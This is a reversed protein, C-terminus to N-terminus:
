RSVRALLEAARERLRNDWNWEPGQSAARLEKAAAEACLRDVVPTLAMLIEEVDDKDWAFPAIAAWLRDATETV